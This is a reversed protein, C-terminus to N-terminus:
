RLGLAVRVAHERLPGSKNFAAMGAGRLPQLSSYEASFLKNLGRVFNLMLQNDGKRAREYKRLVPRDGIFEGGELASVLVEALKIADAFGLNVGQGALPHIAHAADGVLALGPTVYHKAHQSELPFAGRDGSPTLRGLVGGSIGTLRSALQEDTMALAEDANEPTTSWVISVRGDDLPLIGLPGDTLFRQWATNRHDLEPMLHTVFAKQEHPWSDIEIAAADRIFSRAGDAGIVLEPALTRGSDLELEYRNSSKRMSKITTEFRTAVNTQAVKNLLATRVLINEVIFGLQPAAFEAASFAVTEPGDAHGAADWVRMDRYPCARETAIEDWVGIARLLEVSGPAIASVRLSLDDELSFIPKKGADIVTVNALDSKGLLNAIALGVMGAGVIVIDIPQKM